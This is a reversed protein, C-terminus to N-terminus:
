ASWGVFIRQALDHSIMEGAVEAGEVTVSLPGDLPARSEITLLVGPLFLLKFWYRKRFPRIAEGLAFLVVTLVGLWALIHLM